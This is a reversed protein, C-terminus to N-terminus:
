KVKIIGTINTKIQRYVLVYSYDKKYIKEAIAETILENEELMFFKDVPIM